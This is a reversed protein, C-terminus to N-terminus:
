IGPLLQVLFRFICIFLRLGSPVRGCAPLLKSVLEESVADLLVWVLESTPAEM